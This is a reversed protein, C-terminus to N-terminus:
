KERFVMLKSFVYNIVIVAVSTVAKAVFGEIGFITQEMGATVLLTPVFIELVGSFIRAGFFLAIEKGLVAPAFSKSEFVFLKNTIYAFIVAAFWSAANCVTMSIGTQWILITYVVWNVLTTAVGFILYLIIEKYKKWLNRL